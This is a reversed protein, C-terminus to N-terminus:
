WVKYFYTENQILSGHQYNELDGYYLITGGNTLDQGPTYIVGDEPVGFIGDPSWALLVNDLDDNRNWSIDIQDSSSPTVTLNAPAGPIEVGTVIISFNQDGGSITGEHNITITYIGPDPTEIFIKEVNDVDNDGTVAANSPNDRDLMYPYFTTANSVTLDLDNVLMPTIPDLQNAVPTGPIDTWVITVILPETGTATVEFSFESGYYTEENIISSINRYTIVNAATETNMLGWGFIYDPGPDPGCEDATHVALAKLAASKMFFGHTENFHEQLLLLSGAVNPSSMSTGDSYEYDSNDGDYSSYLSYGNGCIDPKIRGDDCPGWSSFSTMEVDAPNGTYGGNLDRVAGVTLINKANGIWGICDYGDVGGDAPHGPEGEGDGRDNGSSKCILYYPADHAIQDWDQSYNGYFGFRFDEETSIGNDGYWVWSSGNWEWGTGFGYSHNSILLGGAAAAAMESEDNNWDHALLEANYSMGKAQRVVGGAILTGAVHTSHSSTTVAGDNQTVRANGTNNFEQHTTLVAGGDWEGITMDTGDLNLGLSGYLYVENTSLTAAANENDIFYYYLQGSESIGQLEAFKGQSDFFSILFGNEEATRIAKAKNLLYRESFTKSLNLLNDVNTKKIIDSIDQNTQGSMQSIFLVQLLFIVTLYQLITRM